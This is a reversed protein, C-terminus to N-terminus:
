DDAYVVDMVTELAKEVGKMGMEKHIMTFGDVIAGIPDDQTSKPIEVRYKLKSARAM